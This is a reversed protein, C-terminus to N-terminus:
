KERRVTCTCFIKMKAADRVSSLTFKTGAWGAELPSYVHWPPCGGNKKRWTSPSAHRAHACGSL